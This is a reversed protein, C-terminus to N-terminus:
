PNAPPADAASLIVAAVEPPKSLMPVQSAEVSTVKAKIRQAMFAQARPDIMHDSAARLYWTPKRHWAATKIKADFSKVAIPGQKVAILATEAPPLDQADYGKARLLPVVRDWSSGDAFAGHVLVITRHPKAPAALASAPVSAVVAAFALTTTLLHVSRSERPLRNTIPSHRSPLALMEM